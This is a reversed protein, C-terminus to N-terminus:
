FVFFMGMQLHSYNGNNLGFFSLVNNNNIFKVNKGHELTTNTNAKINYLTNTTIIANNNPTYIPTNKDYGKFSLNIASKSKNKLQVHFDLLNINYNFLRGKDASVLLDIYDSNNNSLIHFNNFTLNDRIKINSNYYINSNQQYTNNNFQLRYSKHTIRNKNVPISKATAPLNSILEDSTKFTGTKNKKNQKDFVNYKYTDGDKNLTIYDFNTNKFKDIKKINNTKITTIDWFLLIISDGAIICKGDKITIYNLNLSTNNTEANITKWDIKDVPTKAFYGSNGVAYINGGFECVSNINTKEAAKSSYDKYDNLILKKKGDNDIDQIDGGILKENFNYYKNTHIKHGGNINKGGMSYKNLIKHVRLSDIKILKDLRKDINKNVYLRNIDSIYNSIQKINMKELMNLELNLLYEESKDKKDFSNGKNVDLYKIREETKMYILKKIESDITEPIKKIIAEYRLEGNEIRTNLKFENSNLSLQKEIIYYLMGYLDNMNENQGYKDKLIEKLPFKDFNNINKCYKNLFDYIKGQRRLYVLKLKDEDSKDKIYVEFEYNPIDGLLISKAIELTEQQIGKLKKIENLYNDIGLTKYDLGCTTAGMEGKKIKLHDKIIM